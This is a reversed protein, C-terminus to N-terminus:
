RCLACESRSTVLSASDVIVVSVSAQAPAPPQQIRRQSPALEEIRGASVPPHEARALQLGRRTMGTFTILWAAVGIAVGDGLREEGRQLLFEDVPAAPVGAELQLGGHEFVDLREVVALTSM